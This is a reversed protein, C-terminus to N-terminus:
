DLGDSGLKKHIPTENLTRTQLLSGYPFVHKKPSGSPELLGCFMKVM